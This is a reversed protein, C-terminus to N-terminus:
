RVPLYHVYDGFQGDSLFRFFGCSHARARPCTAIARCDSSRLFPRVPLGAVESSGRDCDCWIWRARSPTSTQLMRKVFALYAVRDRVGEVNALQALLRDDELSRDFAVDGTMGGEDDSDAFLLATVAHLTKNICIRPNGTGTGRTAHAGSPECFPCAARSKIEGLREGGRARKRGVLSDRCQACMYAHGCADTVPRSMPRACSACHLIERALVLRYEPTAEVDEELIFAARVAADDGLLAAIIRHLTIDIAPCARKRLSGTCHRCRVDSRVPADRLPEIAVSAASTDTYLAKHYCAHCAIAHGCRGLVPERMPEGCEACAVWERVRELTAADIM